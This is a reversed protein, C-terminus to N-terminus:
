FYMYFFWWNYICYWSIHVELENGKYMFKMNRRLLGGKRSVMIKTKAINVGFCFLFPSIYKGQRVGLFCEFDDSVVNDYM